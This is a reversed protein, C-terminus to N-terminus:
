DEEPILFGLGSNELEERVGPKLVNPIEDWETKGLVVRQAFFIAMMVDGGKLRMFLWLLFRAIM